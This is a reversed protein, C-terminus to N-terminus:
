RASCLIQKSIVDWHEKPVKYDPEFLDLDDALFIVRDDVM